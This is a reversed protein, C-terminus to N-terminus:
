VLSRLAACRTLLDEFAAIDLEAVRDLHAARMRSEQSWHEYTDRDNVLTTVAKVWADPDDRDCFQAADGCAEVLGPTPHAVVPIGACMAEVAVRGWSEYRSPVCLIKTNAYVDDRMRPTARMMRGSSLGSPPRIQTGYAGEVAMFLPRRHFRRALKWFLHAGKDENPNVLTVWPRSWPETDADYDVISVPPRVVVGPVTVFKPHGRQVSEMVWRSNYVIATLNKPALSWHSLQMDNHLIYVLPLHYAHALHVAQKTWLLHGILVDAEHGYQDFRRDLYGKDEPYARWVEIGDVMQPQPIEAPLATVVKCSHGRQVLGRFLAHLMWEAGANVWPPFRDVYAVVNLPRTVQASTTWSEEFQVVDLPTARYPDHSTASKVVDDVTHDRRGGM